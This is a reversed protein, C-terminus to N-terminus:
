PRFRVNCLLDATLVCLMLDGDFSVAAVCLLRRTVVVVYVPYVVEAVVRSLGQILGPELNVM